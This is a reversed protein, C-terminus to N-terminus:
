NYAIDFEVTANATGSTVDAATSVYQATYDFTNTGSNLVGLDHPQNINVKANGSDLIRIAVGTATATSDLALDSESNATGTFSLTAAVNPCQTLQIQFPKATTTDGAASFASKLYSGMNVELPNSVSNTVTCGSDIINGSFKIQGDAALAQVSSALLGLGIVTALKKM